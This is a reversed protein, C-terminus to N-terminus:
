KKKRILHPAVELAVLAVAVGTRPLGAGNGSSLFSFLFALIWGGVTSGLHLLASATMKDWADDKGDL